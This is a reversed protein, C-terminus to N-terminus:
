SARTVVVRSGEVLVIKIPQGKEILDGETVVDVLRDGFRGKGAPRLMTEAVGTAGLLTRASGTSSTYGEAASTSATLELKRFLSTKPLYRALVLAGIGAGVFGGLVKLVPLQLQPWTPLVPGSPMRGVMALVLSVLIAAIGLMGTVGFGPLVFIEVALLVVGVAFLAAEEWGALGAVLYGLFYIGFCILAVLAPVGIGPTKMEIYIALFGVLILLPSIATIWRALVEFGYPSVEFKSAGTLGVRALLEDVTKVTGASLLPEPPDGYTRAAEEHTLTLLKGKESIVEDDIIVEKDADVMAEFVDANHGKEQATARILARLASSIKEEYSKPLEQAGSGPILMVPTAAGIVSGPAMFINDTACAIFAGASYAKPNVFTYTKMPAHQLLRIIEETVDVRGGNTDMELVLAVAKKEDAERVARRLLYLTNHTIDERISVIYVTQGSQAPASVPFVLLAAVWALTSFIARGLSPTM